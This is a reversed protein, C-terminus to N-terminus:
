PSSVTDSPPPPQRPFRAQGYVPGPASRRVAGSPFNLIIPPAAEGLFTVEATLSAARIPSSRHHLKLRVFPRSSFLSLSPPQSYSCSSYGRGHVLEKRLVFNIEPIPPFM